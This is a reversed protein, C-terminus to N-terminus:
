TFTCVPLMLKLLPILLTISSSKKTRPQKVFVVLCNFTWLLYHYFVPLSFIHKIMPLFLEVNAANHTEANKTYFLKMVLLITAEDIM